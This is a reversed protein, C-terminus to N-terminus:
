GQLRVPMILHLYSEDKNDRFVGPSASGNTEITISGGDVSALFDLLYKYNFAVEIGEGQTKADIQTEERGYESSESFIVIKDKEIRLKIVSAAEKGLVGAVKVARALDNKDVNAWYQNGKPIIKEFDPFEGELIRGTLVLSSNAFLIQKEKMSVEIDEEGSGIVKALEELMRAPILLREKTQSGTKSIEIDKCSLRFGDTAVARLRDKDFILLVGTLKPRSEDKSAAFSVKRNLLTLVEQPLSFDKQSIKEPVEPFESASIGNLSVLFASGKLSLQSEKEKLSIKGAPLNSVLDGIIKAPITIAGEKEVKAGILVSIGMELNTAALRIKNGSAHILINSLVPLQARSSVFRSVSAIGKLLDEQLVLAEM